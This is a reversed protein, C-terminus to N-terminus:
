RDYAYDKIQLLLQSNFIDINNKLVLYKNLKIQEIIWNNINQHYHTFDKYNDLDKTIEFANHFDYLKVNQFELFRHFVYLKFKLIDELIGEKEWQKYTIISYPPYFFIFKTDPYQRIISIFNYEFSNKMNEYSYDSSLNEKNKKNNKLQLLVKDAGFNNNEQHQWQYMNEYNYLIDNKKILPRVIAKISNVLTDINLLYSYDNFVNTDYLYLPMSNSGHRLRDIRGSVSYIDFGILINDIKKGTEFATKLTLFLEHASAGSICLKIPNKLLQSSKSILFNETMSSGIIISNYNYNKALGPNLYREKASTFGVKYINTERYQQFPDIIYNLAAVFGITLLVGLFVFAVFKRSRM